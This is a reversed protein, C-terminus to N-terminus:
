VYIYVYMYIYTFIWINITKRKCTHKQKLYMHTYMCKYTCTCVFPVCILALICCTNVDHRASRSAHEIHDTTLAKACAVDLRQYAFICIHIYTHIYVHIYVYIHIYLYICAHTFVHIYM